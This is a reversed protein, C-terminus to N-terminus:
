KIFNLFAYLYKYMHTKVISEKKHLVFQHTGKEYQQPTVYQISTQQEVRGYQDNAIATPHQAYVIDEGLDNEASERSAQFHLLIM